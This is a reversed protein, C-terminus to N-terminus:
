KKEGVDEYHERNLHFGMKLWTIYCYTAIKLLDKEMGENKFRGLYKLITGLPWDVGSDGPVFECILDTMEKDESLQYKTKGAHMFQNEILKSFTPFNEKKVKLNTTEM